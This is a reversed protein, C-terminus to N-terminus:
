SLPTKLVQGSGQTIMKVVGYLQEIDAIINNNKGVGTFFLFYRNVRFFAKTDNKWSKRRALALLM